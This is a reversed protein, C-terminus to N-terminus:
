QSAKWVLDAASKGFEDFVSGAAFGAILGTVVVVGLVTWGIPGAVLLGASSALAIGGSVVAKGAVIGAAAGAGFGTVQRASERMWDGGDKHVDAVKTYRLFADAGIAANGVFKLTKACGGLWSAQVRNSVQIRPDMKPSNPKRTALTIGREANSLADGRNKARWAQPAYKSLESGYARELAHFAENVRARAKAKVAAAGRGHQNNRSLKWLDVLAKQYELIKLEFADLRVVAATSAAGIFSNIKALNEKTFYRSFFGALAVTEEGAASALKSIYFRDERPLSNIYNVVSFTSPNYNGPSYAKCADILSGQRFGNTRCFDAMAEPGFILENVSVPRQTFAIEAM